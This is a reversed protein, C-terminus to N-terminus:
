IKLIEGMLDLVSDDFYLVLIKIDEESKHPMDFEEENEIQDYISYYVGGREFLSRFELRLLNIMEGRVVFAYDPDKLFAIKQLENLKPTNM